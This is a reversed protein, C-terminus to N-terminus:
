EVLDSRLQKMTAAYADKDNVTPKGIGRVESVPVHWGDVTVFAGTVAVHTVVGVVSAVVCRDTLTLRVANGLMWAKRLEWALAREDHALAKV